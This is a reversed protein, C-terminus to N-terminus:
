LTGPRASGVRFNGRHRAAYRAGDTDGFVRIRVTRQNGMPADWVPEKLSYAKSDSRHYILPNHYLARVFARETRSLRQGYPERAEGAQSVVIGAAWRQSVRQRTRLIVARQILSAAARDYRVSLPDRVPPM